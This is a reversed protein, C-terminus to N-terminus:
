GFVTSVSGLRGDWDVMKGWWWWGFDGLGGDKLCVSEDGEKRGQNPAAMAFRGNSGDSGGGDGRWGSAERMM